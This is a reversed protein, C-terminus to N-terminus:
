RTPKLFQEDGLMRLMPGALRDLVAGPDSELEYGSVVAATRMEDRDVITPYSFHDRTSRRVGRM